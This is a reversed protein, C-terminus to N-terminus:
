RERERAKFEKRPPRGARLAHLLMAAWLMGEDTIYLPSSFPMGDGAYVELFTGHREVLSLYQAAARGARYPDHNGCVALYLMGLHAWVADDEYGPALRALYFSRRQKHLQYRLPFPRTIGASDMASLSSRLMKRDAVMGTWYPLTNADGAVYGDKAMDDHFYSGNWLEEVARGRVADPDPMGHLGLREASTAALWLMCNDYCSSTRKAHDKISSFDGPRVLGTSPDYFRKPYEQVQKELFRRHRGILRRDDLLALSSLLYALSDPAVTPIDIPEHWPTITTTVRRAREFRSLAYALTSRVRERHGLSLLARACWGFDRTYFEGFHGTSTRYYGQRRDYCEDVIRHCIEEASGPYRAFGHKAVRRKRRLFRIGERALSLPRM